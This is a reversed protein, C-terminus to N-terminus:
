DARLKPIMHIMAGNGVGYRSIRRTDELHAFNYIVCQRCPPVGTREQIKARLDEVTDNSFVDLTHSGGTLTKVVIQMPTGQEQPQQEQQQGQQSYNISPHSEAFAKEFDAVSIPARSALATLM